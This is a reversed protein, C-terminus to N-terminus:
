VAEGPAPAPTEGAEPEAPAAESPPPEAPAAAPPASGGSAPEYGMWLVAEPEGGIPVTVEVTGPAAGARRSVETAALAWSAKPGARGTAVLKRDSTAIVGAGRDLVHVFTVSPLRLLEGVAADVAEQREAAVEGRIGAAFARGVAEAEIELLRKKAEEVSRREAALESRLSEERETLRSQWRRESWQWLGWGVAGLLLLVLVEWLIRKM